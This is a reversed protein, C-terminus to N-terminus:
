GESSSSDDELGDKRKRKAKGKGPSKSTLSGGEGGADKTEFIFTRADRDEGKWGGRGSGDKAAIEGLTRAHSYGPYTSWPFKFSRVVRLGAHRALDRVNWLTYPEGEFITILIQGPETRPPTKRKRKEGALPEVAGESDYYNDAYDDDESSSMSGENRDGTPRDPTSLLPICAKFFSVLLEQNSRVQRNVDTSLGGVHPFNFCIIDWPGGRLQERVGGKNDETCRPADKSPLLSRLRSSRSEPRPFGNRIEKGGGVVGAGLKKADVSFLVKPGVTYNNMPLKSAVNRRERKDEDIDNGNESAGEEGPGDIGNWEQSDENESSSHHGDDDSERKGKLPKSPAHGAAILRDINQKAQPYKEHVTQESDYSTALM